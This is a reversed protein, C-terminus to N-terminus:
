GRRLGYASMKKHLNTRELGLTAAARSVNWGSEELAALIFGKEQEDRFERLTMRGLLSALRPAAPLAGPAEPLLGPLHRLVHDARLVPERVMIVLREIVNRLERVNGPWRHGALLRLAEEEVAMPRLGNERCFIELFHATLEPVDEPRERLPPVRLPIVNIRYFLDVRFAGRRIEEELNKNTAALVRVEVRITRDGGLRTLEGSQLIRLVKSQAPLSMDGIEDLFLTGGHAQEFKGLKQREAGTYAGREAGFLESEILDAPIAACNVKIFPGRVLASLGHVARAVLEKGTGSEGIILVRGRSPAARGIEERL